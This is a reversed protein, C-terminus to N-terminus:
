KRSLAKYSFYDPSDNGFSSLFLKRHNNTLPAKGSYIEHNKLGLKLVIDAYTKHINCFHVGLITSCFMKNPHNIIYHQLCTYRQRLLGNGVWDSIKSCPGLFANRCEACHVLNHCEACRSDVGLMTKSLTAADSSIAALSLRVLKCYRNNTVVTFHKVTTAGTPGKQFKIRKQNL